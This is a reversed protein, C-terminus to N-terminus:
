NKPAAREFDIKSESFCAQKRSLLCIQQASSFQLFRVSLSNQAWLHRSTQGGKVPIATFLV